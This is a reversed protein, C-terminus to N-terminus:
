PSCVRVLCDEGQLGNLSALSAPPARPILVWLKRFLSVSGGCVGSGLPFGGPCGSPTKVNGPITGFDGPSWLLFLSCVPAQGPFLLFKIPDCRVETLDVEGYTRKGWLSAM